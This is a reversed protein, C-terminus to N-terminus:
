KNKLRKIYLLLSAIVAALVAVTTAIITLQTSDSLFTNPSGNYLTPTSDSPLTPTPSTTSSAPITITQTNSWASKEGEFAYASAPLAVVHHIYGIM